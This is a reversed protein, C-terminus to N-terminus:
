RGNAGDYIIQTNTGLETETLSKYPMSQGHTLLLVVSQKLISM